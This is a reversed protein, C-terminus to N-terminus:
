ERNEELKISETSEDAILETAQYHNPLGKTPPEFEEAIDDPMTICALLQTLLLLVTLFRILSLLKTM